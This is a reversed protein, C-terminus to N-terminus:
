KVKIVLDFRHYKLAERSNKHVYVHVDLFSGILSTPFMWKLRKHFTLLHQQSCFRTEQIKYHVSMHANDSFM